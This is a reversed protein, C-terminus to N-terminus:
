RRGKKEGVKKKYLLQRIVIVSLYVPGFWCSNEQLSSSTPENETRIRWILLIRYHTYYNPSFHFQWDLL